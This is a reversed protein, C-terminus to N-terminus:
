RAVAMSGSILDQIASVKSRKSKLTYASMFFIFNRINRGFLFNHMPRPLIACM